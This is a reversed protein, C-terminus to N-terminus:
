FPRATAYVGSPPGGSVAARIQSTNPLEFNFGGNETLSGNTPIFATGNPGQVELSVTAGNFTGEVLFTGRGGTWQVWDGTATANNLLTAM